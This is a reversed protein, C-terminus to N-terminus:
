AIGRHSGIGLPEGIHQRRDLRDVSVEFLGGGSMAAEAAM